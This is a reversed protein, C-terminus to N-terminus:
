NESARLTGDNRWALAMLRGLDTNDGLFVVSGDGKVFQAGGLHPSTFASHKQQARLRFDRNGYIQRRLEWVPNIPDSMISTNTTVSLAFGGQEANFFPGGAGGAFSGGGWYSARNDAIFGNGLDLTAKTGDQRYIWDSQEGVMLTNSMGDTCDKIRINEWAPGVTGGPTEAYSPSRPTILGNYTNYGTGSWHDTIDSVGMGPGVTIWPWWRVLGPSQAGNPNYVAGMVGIYHGALSVGDPDVSPDYTTTAGGNGWSGIKQPMASSPCLLFGLESENHLKANKDLAYGMWDTGEWVIADAFGTQETFPLIRTVWSASFDPLGNDIESLVSSPPLCNYTSEYNLIALGIQKLNNKCQTRRAAERAQQVAPLLIAVLIAIIAIVVLLEILTFGGRAPRGNRAPNSLRTM